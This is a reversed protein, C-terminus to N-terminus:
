NHHQNRKTKEQEKSQKQMKKYQLENWIEKKPASKGENWDRTITTREQKKEIEGGDQSWNEKSKKIGAMCIM